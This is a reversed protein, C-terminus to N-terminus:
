RGTNVEGKVRIDGTLLKQMLGKKLIEYSQKKNELTEIKNDVTSLIEAIEKQESFIPVGLKISYLNERRLSPIGSGENYKTLDINRISYFFWKPFYGSRIRTYFLTEVIWFPKEVYMPDNITGKRGILVSPQDYLYSTAKGMEGSTGMILYEGDNSAVKKQDKGYIIECIIELKEIDWEKPIRGIQTDKFETHGIGETLLQRMLGQKLQETQKMQQEISEIKNDVTSLIEAIKKQEPLPPLPISFKKLTKKSIELFTSGSSHKILESQQFKLLFLFFLNDIKNNCIFTAFGQNTSMPVKNIKCEGITARSTMLLSGVPLRTASSNKLGIETIQHDTESIYNGKRKTFDTPTAWLVDGDKWYDDVNRDPTGEGVINAVQDIPLIDWEKPIWGLETKQYGKKYLTNGVRDIHHKLEQHELRPYDTVDFKYPTPLEELEMKLDNSQLVDGEDFWVALDIDSGNRYIGMARSGYLKVTLLQPFDSFCQMMQQLTSSSIGHFM